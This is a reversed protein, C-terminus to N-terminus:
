FGKSGVESTGHSFSACWGIARGGQLPRSGAVGGQTVELGRSKAFGTVASKRFVDVPREM